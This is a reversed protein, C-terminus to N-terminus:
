KSKFLKKEDEKEIIQLNSFLTAHPMDIVLSNFWAQYSQKRFNKHPLVKKLRMM